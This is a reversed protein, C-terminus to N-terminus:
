RRRSRRPWRWSGRPGGRPQPGRASQPHGRRRRSARLHGRRRAERLNGRRRAARLHGRRRRRAATPVRGRSRTGRRGWAKAAAGAPHPPQLQPAGGLTPTRLARRLARRRSRQRPLGRTLPRQQVPPPPRPKAPALVRHLGGLHCRRAQPPRPERAGRGRQTCGTRCRSGRAPRPEELLQPTGPAAGM